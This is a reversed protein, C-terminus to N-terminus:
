AAANSVEVRKFSIAWTWPNSSWPARKGNLAQWTAQFGLRADFVAITAPQGNLTGPGPPLPFGEARADADSISQLREVRVDTVELTIRSLDRPCHIAPLVHRKWPWGDYGTASGDAVYVSDTHDREGDCWNSQARVTERVWLRDGVHYPVRVAYGVGAKTPDPWEAFIVEHPGQVQCEAKATPPVRILRRTQTKAGSLIALVMPASFLIPKERLM